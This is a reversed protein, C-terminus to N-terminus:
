RSSLHPSVQVTKACTLHSEYFPRATFTLQSIQKETVQNQNQNEHKEELNTLTGMTM